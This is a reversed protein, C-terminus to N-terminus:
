LQRGAKCIFTSGKVKTSLLRLIGLPTSKKVMDRGSNRPLLRAHGVVAGPRLEMKSQLCM